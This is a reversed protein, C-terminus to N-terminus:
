GWRFRGREGGGSPSLPLVNEGETLPVPPPICPFLSYEGGRPPPPPPPFFPFSLTEGAGPPPPQPLPPYLPPSFDTKLRRLFLFVCGYGPLGFQIEQFFEGYIIM